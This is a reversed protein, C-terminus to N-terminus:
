SLGLRKLFRAVLIDLDAPDTTDEVPFHDIEAIGAHRYLRDRTVEAAFRGRHHPGDVQVIGVRGRFAILLDPESTKINRIVLGPNPAIAITDDDPMADRARKFARYVLVEERSRFQCGDEWLPESRALGVTGQNTVRPALKSQLDARWDPSAPPLAGRVDLRLVHVSQTHMVENLADYVASRIEDTFREVLFRPVEMAANFLDIAETEGGDLPFGTDVYSREV